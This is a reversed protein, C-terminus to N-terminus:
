KALGVRSLLAAFRPDSRLSDFGPDVKLAGLLSAREDCARGLWEFAGDRDGLGIFVGAVYYSSVYRHKALALLDDLLARAEGKKGALGYAYGLATM